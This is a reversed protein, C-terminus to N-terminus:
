REALSNDDVNTPVETYHGYAPCKHQPECACVLIAAAAVICLSLIFRKMEVIKKLKCFYIFYM